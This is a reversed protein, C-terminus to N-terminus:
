DAPCYDLLAKHLSRILQPTGYPIFVVKRTDPDLDYHGNFGFTILYSFNDALCEEPAWVYDTNRGVLDYFDEADEIQITTDPNDLPVLVGQLSGYFTLDPNEAAADAYSGPFVAVLACRRKEGGITFEAWNDIHEVDPNHLLLNSVTPGFEVEHDMVTFGILSYVLQRFQADNRTLCHFIEHSIFTHSLQVLYELYDADYQPDSRYGGTMLNLLGTELYIKNCMTYGGMHAEDAMDSKIFIIEDTVPMRFGLEATRAEIFAMVKSLVQKEEDTFEQIESAAVAKFEDISQGSSQLRWDIDTQSLSNYYATDELKLQRGEEQSAFRYKLGSQEKGSCAGLVVLLLIVLRKM